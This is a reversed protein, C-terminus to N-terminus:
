TSFTVPIALLIAQPPPNTWVITKVNRIANELANKPPSYPQHNKIGWIDPDISIYARLKSYIIRRPYKKWFILQM